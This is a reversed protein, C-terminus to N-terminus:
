IAANNPPGVPIDQGTKSPEPVVDVLGNGAGYLTTFSTQDPTGAERAANGGIVYM